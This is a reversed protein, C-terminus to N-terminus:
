YRLLAVNRSHWLNDADRRSQIYKIETSPVHKYINLQIQTYQSECSLHNLISDTSHKNVSETKQKRM